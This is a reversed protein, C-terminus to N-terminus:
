RPPTPPSQGVGGLNVGLIPDGQARGGPHAGEGRHGLCGRTQTRLDGDAAGHLDGRQQAVHVAEFVADDQDGLTGREEQEEANSGPLRKDLIVNMQIVWEVDGLSGKKSDSQM